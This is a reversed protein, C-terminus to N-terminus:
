FLAHHYMSSRKFKTNELRLWLYKTELAYIYYKKKHLSLGHVTYMLLYTKGIERRGWHLEGLELLIKGRSTRVHQLSACLSSSSVGIVQMNLIKFNGMVSASRHIPYSFVWISNLGLYKKWVLDFNYTAHSILFSLSAKCQTSFHLIYMKWLEVSM